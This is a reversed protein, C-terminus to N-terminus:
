NRFRVKLERLLNGQNDSSRKAARQLASLTASCLSLSVHKLIFLSPTCLASSISDNSNQQLWRIGPWRLARTIARSSKSPSVCWEVCRTGTSARILPHGLHPHGLSIRQCAPFSLLRHKTCSKSPQQQPNQRPLQVAWLADADSCVCVAGEGAGPGLVTQWHKLAGDGSTEFSYVAIATVGAIPFAAKRLTHTPAPLQPNLAFRLYSPTM